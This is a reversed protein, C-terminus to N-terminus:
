KLANLEEESWADERGATAARVRKVADPTVPPFAHGWERRVYTLVAAIQEDDLVGLSPMDLEFKEGKVTIPGRLGQLIIRILREEPGAVWETDVLPPALGDQGMGNPQHCALCTAEYLAKGLEFRKQDEPSLAPAQTTARKPKAEELEALGFRAADKALVVATAQQIKDLIDRAVPDNLLGLTLALQIQVNPDADKTMGYVLLKLSTGEASDGLLFPESLRLAAARLKPHKDKLVAEVTKAKLKELGELTWLAHLRALPNGHTLAMKHLAALASADAREILLRQATDRWWGNPHALHAVLEPVAEGSLRPPRASPRDRYLVRYIRGQHLPKDLDRSEIQQRLYSTLYIRHQLIGHYMDVIYLAGDPGNYLNVPRFREDTSALFEKDPYANRGTIVGDKETLINRKILNGSPECVFANGSFEAPFNDGRYIVPGCAATFRALTGDDRLTGKQYGRNVGPNVRIPYVTQDKAVQSNLGRLKLTPKRQLYHSPIFDARLQDSNSNFVLRGWDDQSIGWQGRGSTPEREWTGRTNRFRTNHNASYIWNDLAWLLGNATHEPNVQSGYDSAVEVKEDCKGDGSTDRCFWLHPPEAVLVGDRVLALARPMVLNDLFITKKDMRGDGDSDELHAIRGPIEQEGKGESNPMFGRMELVWISGDPDFAMAVPSEVMPESAVLEIRFGPPLAFTRLAQEATLPPAPPIKERPVREVQEEGKRDGQQASAAAASFFLGAVICINWFRM